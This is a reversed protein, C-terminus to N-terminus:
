RAAAARADTAANPLSPADVPVVTFLERYGSEALPVFRQYWAKWEANEGERRYDLEARLTESLEAALGVPDFHRVVPVRAAVRAAARLLRLDIAVEEVVGPRRVKVVVPTGDALRAGHVQGISASALPEM